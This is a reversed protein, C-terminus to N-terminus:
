KDDPHKTLSDTDFGQSAAMDLILNDLIKRDLRGTSGFFMGRANSLINFWCKGFVDDKSIYRNYTQYYEDAYSALFYVVTLLLKEVGEPNVLAKLHYIYRDTDAQLDKGKAFLLQIQNDIVDRCLM